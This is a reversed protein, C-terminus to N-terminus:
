KPSDNHVGANNSTADDINGGSYEPDVLDHSLSRHIHLKWETSAHHLNHNRGNRDANCPYKTLVPSDIIHISPCGLATPATIRDTAVILGGVYKSPVLHQVVTTRGTTKDM